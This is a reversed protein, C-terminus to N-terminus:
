PKQGLSTKPVRSGLFIGWVIRKELAVEGSETTFVYCLNPPFGIKGLNRAYWDRPSWLNYRQNALNWTEQWSLFKDFKRLFNHHARDILMLM